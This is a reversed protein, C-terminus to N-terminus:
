LEEGAEGSDTEMEMSDLRRVSKVYSLNPFQRKLYRNGEDQILGQDPREGYGKYIRDVVDMGRVVRAFPAFGQGDLSSNDGFNIFMQTTRSDPGSTAFSVYGRRNSEKVPDDKLRADRWVASADHKPAIGFQAM